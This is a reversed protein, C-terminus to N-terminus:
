PFRTDQGGLDKLQSPDKYIGPSSLFDGAFLKSQNRIVQYHCKLSLSRIRAEEGRAANSPKKPAGNLGGCRLMPHNDFIALRNIDM